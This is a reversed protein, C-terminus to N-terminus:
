SGRSSSDPSSFEITLETGLDAQGDGAVPRPQREPITSRLAAIAETRGSRGASALSRSETIGSFDTFTGGDILARRWHLWREQDEAAPEVLRVLQRPQEGVATPLVRGATIQWLCSGLLVGLEVRMWAEAGIPLESPIEIVAKDGELVRLVGFQMGEDSRLSIAASARVRAQFEFPELM